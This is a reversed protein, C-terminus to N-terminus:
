EQLQPPYKSLLPYLDCSVLCDEERLLSVYIKKFPSTSIPRLGALIGGMVLTFTTSQKNKWSISNTTIPFNSIPWLGALIGGLYYIAPNITYSMSNPILLDVLIEQEINSFTNVSNPFNSIPRPGARRGGLMWTIM